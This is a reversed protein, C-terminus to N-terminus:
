EQLANLREVASAAYEDFGQRLAEHAYAKLLKRSNANVYLANVLIDYAEQSNPKKTKYFNAAAIVGEEFYPNWRGLVKYNKDATATDGSSESILAAYLLKHLQHAQDFEVDKNIQRALMRIEGRSALMQLEFHRIDEYLRKDTLQIGSTETLFRIAAPLQDAKYFRQSLDLLAQARYNNDVFTNYVKKFLITDSLAIRYRCFQYKEEDPLKLAETSSVTLISKLQSALRQISKDDNVGLSDWALIAENTKRAETLAIANYFKAYKYDATEAFTFYTSAAEANGQELAWLGMIYNYKGKHSQTLYVLEALVELAKAVNGQHYYANALSAKLAESYSYNLSDSAIANARSTFATDLTKANKIIYNNLYTASYLDLERQALPDKNIKINQGFLTAAAMANSLTAPSTTNFFKLVSDTNIPIYEATVMALFNTEASSKVEADEMAENLYHTASDLSHTKAYSYGLNNKIRASSPLIKDAKEFSKIADFYNGTWFYLNGQNILAFESPRRGAALQYNREAGEFNLRSTKLTGLAYNARHNQVANNSSQEYFSQGFAENGQLIYLDAVYNYFGALGHYVYQHWNSYFVFALTAILGAFRFTFFPMRNPRYLIKYVQKGEAMMAMFNSLFYTFFIIGFGAHSFIIIDRIIRLAADNSNALLQFSTAFFILALSIIFFAGFPNFALINEYQPERLRFGWIGLIASITILLYINLYIFQWDIVGMEHLCTIIVNLLYIFSIISFHKVNGSTTQNTIYVFAAPIEHAVTIVFLISIILAPTYATTVLHLVPFPITSFFAIIASIIITLISFTIFRITFSTAPKFSKFYYSTSVYLVIVVIPIAIGRFRFVQLVDLKLSVVFIIFLSMAVFYWFRELTTFVTLLVLASFILIAFFLYSSTQHHQLETGGFYEFIVYSEGPVALTFPGTRFSHVTTEITKQEQIKEWSIVGNAGQINYIWLLAISLLFLASLAYWFIQYEKSWHKWFAFQM